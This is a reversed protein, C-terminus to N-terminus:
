KTYDEKLQKCWAQLGKDIVSTNVCIVSLNISSLIIAHNFGSVVNMWVGDDGINFSLGEINTEIKIAKKTFDSANMLWKNDEENYNKIIFLSHQDEHSISMNYKKSIISIEKLFKDMEKNEVHDEVENNWRKM